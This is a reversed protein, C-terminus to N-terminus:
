NAKYNSVVDTYFKEHEMAIKAIDFRAEAEKRANVAYENMLEPNKLAWIIKEAMDEPDRYAFLRASFKNKVSEELVPIRTAIIQKGMLMAEVLAGGQGEYHSPFLFIDAAKLLSPVDNRNGLLFVKDELDLEKILSEIVMQDHGRGAILYTADPYKESVNKFAKISELYGKRILLRAVTLLIPGQGYKSRIYSVKEEDIKNWLEQFNRGRHIVKVKTPDINLAKSNNAIIAHTLSMFRTVRPAMLRDIFHYVSLSTKQKFPLLEIREPSYSDNVFSNIVPINNKKGLYRAFQDAMFLNSHILDPEEENIINQIENKLTIISFRTNKDLAYVKIGKNEFDKKLETGKYLSVVIPEWNKLRAGIELTSTEAGGRQLTDFLYLVKKM